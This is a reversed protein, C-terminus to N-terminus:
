MDTQEPRRGIGRSHNEIQAKLREALKLCGAESCLKIGYELLRLDTELPLEDANDVAWWPFIRSYKEKEAILFMYGTVRGDRRAFVFQPLRGRESKEMEDKISGIDGHNPGFSTAMLEALCRDKENEPLDLYNIIEDM